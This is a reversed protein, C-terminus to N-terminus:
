DLFLWDVTIFADDIIYNTLNEFIYKEFYHKSVILSKMNETKQKKCYYEYAEYFSINSFSGNSAVIENRM